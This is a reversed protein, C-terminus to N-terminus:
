DEANDCADFSVTTQDDVELAYMYQYLKVALVILYVLVQFLLWDCLSETDEEHLTSITFKGQVGITIKSSGSSDFGHLIDSRVESEFAFLRTTQQSSASANGFVAALLVCVVIVVM